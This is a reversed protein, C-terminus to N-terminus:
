VKDRGSRRVSQRDRMVCGREFKLDSIQLAAEGNALEPVSPVTALNAGVAISSIAVVASVLLLKLNPRMGKM